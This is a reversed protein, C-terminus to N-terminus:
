CGKMLIKKTKITSQNQRDFKRSGEESIGLTQFRAVPHMMIYLLERLQPLIQPSKHCFMGPQVVIMKRRITEFNGFLTELSFM